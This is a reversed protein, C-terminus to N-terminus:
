MVARVMVYFQLIVKFLVARHRCLGTSLRGIPVVVSGLCDRLDNIRKRWIPFLDAEWVSASGRTVVIFVYNSQHLSFLEFGIIGLLSM